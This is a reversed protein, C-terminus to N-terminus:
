KENREKKKSTKSCLVWGTAFLALGAIALTPVPWNLQGTQPLQPEDPKDPEDPEDPEDPPPVPAPTLEVKPSAEVDYIYEGDKLRPVTVLFANAKNYGEAAENQVLLYLGLELDIFSVKGDADISKTSGILRNDAAYAALDSALASSDINSLDLGCDAFDGTPVFTYDGNSEHVEGVRYLTLTGGGVKTEGSHMTISISGKETLDPVPHAFVTLSMGCLLLVTILFIMSKRLM